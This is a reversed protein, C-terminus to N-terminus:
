EKGSLTKQIIGFAERERNTHGMVLVTYSRELVERLGYREAELEKIRCWPCLPGLTCQDNHERGQSYILAELEKIRGKLELRQFLESDKVTITDLDHELAEIRSNYRMSQRVLEAELDTVRDTVGEKMAEFLEIEADLDKIKTLMRRLGNACTEGPNIWDRLDEPLENPSGLMKYYYALATDTQERAEKISIFGLPVVPTKEAVKRFLRMLHGMGREEASLLKEEKGDFCAEWAEKLFPLTASIVWELEKVRERLATLEAQSQKLLDQLGITYSDM